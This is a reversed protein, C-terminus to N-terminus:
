MYKGVPLQIRLETIGTRSKRGFYNYLENLKIVRRIQGMLSRHHTAPIRTIV